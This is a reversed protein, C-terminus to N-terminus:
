RRGAEIRASLLLLPELSRVSVSTSRARGKPSLDEIRACEEGDILIKLSGRASNAQMTVRYTEGPFFGQFDDGAGKLAREV